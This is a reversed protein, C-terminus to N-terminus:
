EVADTVQTTAETSAETTSVSAESNSPMTEEVSTESSSPITEEVSTESSPITEEVSTESSSPITEEVSTESSGPITEEVSTELTTTPAVTAPVSEPIPTPDAEMEPQSEGITPDSDSLMVTVVYGETGDDLKIKCFSDNFELITVAEGRLLNYLITSDLASSAFVPNNDQTSYMVKYFVESENVTGPITPQNETDIKGFSLMIKMGFYGICFTVLLIIIPTFINRLIRNKRKKAMMAADGEKKYNENVEDDSSSEQYVNNAIQTAAPIVSDCRISILSLGYKANKGKANEILNQAKNEILADTSIISAIEAPSLNQSVGTGILYIEDGQLLKFNIKTNAEIKEDQSLKGIYHTLENREPHKYEDDKTVSGLQVYRHALTQDETLAILRGKRSLFAKTNGIHFVRIIDGIVVIVTMSLKISVANQASANIIIASLERICIDSFEDFNSDASSMKVTVIQHFKAIVSQLSMASVQDPGQASFIAYVQVENKITAKKAFASSYDQLQRSVGHIYVNEQNSGAAQNTHCITVATTHSM